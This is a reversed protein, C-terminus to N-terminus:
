KHLKLGRLRPAQACGRTVCRTSIPHLYVKLWFCVAIGARWCNQRDDSKFRCPIRISGKRLNAEREKQRGGDRGNKYLATRSFKRRGQSTLFTELKNMGPQYNSRIVHTLWDHTIESNGSATFQFQKDLEDMQQTSLTPLERLFHNWHHTTWDATQLILRSRQLRFVKLLRM